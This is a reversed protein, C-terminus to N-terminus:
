CLTSSFTFTFDYGKHRIEMDPHCFYASTYIFSWMNKVEATFPPLYDSMCQQKKKVNLPGHM